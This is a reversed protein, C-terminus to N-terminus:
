LTTHLDSSPQHAQVKCGQPRSKILSAVGGSRVRCGRLSLGQGQMDRAKRGSNTKDGLEQERAQKSWRDVWGDMM